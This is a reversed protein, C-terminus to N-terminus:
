NIKSVLYLAGSRVIRYSILGIITLFICVIIPLIPGFTYSMGLAFGLLYEPRYIPTFFSVLILGMMLYSPAESGISFLVSLLIGFVLAGIFRYVINSLVKTESLDSQNFRRQILYLLLWTFVPLAIGGWWNSIGPLDQRQLLHHTPVGGHFYDWVLLSWILITIIGTFIIRTKETLQQTM